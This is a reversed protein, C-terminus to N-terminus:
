PGHSASGFGMAANRAAIDAPLLQHAAHATWWSSLMTATLDIPHPVVECDVSEKRGM